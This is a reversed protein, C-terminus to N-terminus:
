TFLANNFDVLNIEPRIFDLPAVPAWCEGRAARLEAEAPRQRLPLVPLESVAVSNAVSGRERWLDCCGLRCCSGVGPSLRCSLDPGRRIDDLGAMGGGKCYNRMMCSMMCYHRMMCKMMFSMMCCDSGMMCYMVWRHQWIMSYYCRMVSCYCRMVSYYCRMMSCYCRMVSSMECDNIGIWCWDQGM